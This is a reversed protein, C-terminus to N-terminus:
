LHSEPQMQILNTVILNMGSRMRSKARVHSSDKKKKLVGEGKRARDVASQFIEVLSRPGLGKRCFGYRVRRSREVIISNM